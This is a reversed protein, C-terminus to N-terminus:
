CLHVGAGSTGGALVSSLFSGYTAQGTVAGQAAPNSRETLVRFGNPGRVDVEIVHRDLRDLPPPSRGPTILTSPTPRPNPAPHSVAVSLQGEWYVGSAYRPDVVLRAQVRDFGLSAAALAAAAMTNVNNPALPCLERVTGAGGGGGRADRAMDTLPLSSTPARAVPQGEFLVTESTGAPDIEALRTSLPPELRYHHPAKKMTVSLATLSGRESMRQIDLGGWLAGAPVYLGFPGAAAAARLRAELAADALATPSGVQPPRICPLGRPHDPPPLTAPPPRM